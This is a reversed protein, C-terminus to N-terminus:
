VLQNICNKCSNAPSDDPLPLADSCGCAPPAAFATDNCGTGPMNCPFELVSIPPNSAPFGCTKDCWGQYPKGPAYYDACPYKKVLAECTSGHCQAATPTMACKDRATSNWAARLSHDDHMCGTNPHKLVDLTGKNAQAWRWTSGMWKDPVFFARQPMNWPSGKLNVGVSHMQMASELSCMYPYANSGWNPGFPCMNDESPFHQQYQKIFANYFRAQDSADTTYHIHWSMVVLKGGAQQWTQNRCDTPYDTPYDPRGSDTPYEPRGSHAASGAAFAFLVLLAPCFM